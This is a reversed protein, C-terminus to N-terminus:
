TVLAAAPVVAQGALLAYKCLVRTTTGGGANPSQLDVFVSDAASGPEDTTWSLALDQSRQLPSSSAAFFASGERLSMSPPSALVVQGGPAMASGPGHGWAFTIPVGVQVWAPAGNVTESPYAGNAGPALAAATMAGGSIAVAGVDPVLGPPADSLCPDITCADLVVSTCRTSGLAFWAARTYSPGADAPADSTVSM